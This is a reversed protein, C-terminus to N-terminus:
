SARAASNLAATVHQMSASVKTTYTYASDATNSFCIEATTKACVYDAFPLPIDPVFLM